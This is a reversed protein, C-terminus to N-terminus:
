DVTLHSTHTAYNIILDHIGIRELQLLLSHLSHM